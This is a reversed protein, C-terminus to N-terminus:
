IVGAGILNFVIGLATIGVAVAAIPLLIEVVAESSKERGTWTSFDGRLWAAWSSDPNSDRGGAANSENSATEGSKKPGRAKAGARWLAVPIAIVMFALVSVIALALGIYGSGGFLLWAAAVFWVLLAVAAMHVAPHLETSDVQSSRAHLSM